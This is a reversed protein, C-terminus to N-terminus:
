SYGWFLLAPKSSFLRIELVQLTGDWFLASFNLAQVSSNATLEPEITPFDDYFQLTLVHMFFNALHWIGRAARNFCYVSSTTGFMLSHSVFYSPSRKHPDYAMIVTSWLSEESHGLQKYAAKLDLTRGQWRIGGNKNWDAHVTGSLIDGSELTLHVDQMAVQRQATMTLDILCDVDMLELKERTTLCDNLGSEQADDILRIKDGQRIAFRRSACWSQSKLIECVQESSFPGLMWGKDVEGLTQQWLTDDM